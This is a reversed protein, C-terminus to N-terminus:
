RSVNVHSDPTMLQHDMETLLGTILGTRLGIHLLGFGLVSPNATVICMQM